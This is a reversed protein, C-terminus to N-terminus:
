AFSKCSSIYSCGIIARLANGLISNCVLVLLLHMSFFCNYIHSEEDAFKSIGSGSNHINLIGMFEYFRPVLLMECCVLWFKISVLVSLWHLLYITPLSIQLSFTKYLFHLNFLNGFIFAQFKFYKAKFQHQKKLSAQFHLWWCIASPSSCSAGLPSGSTMLIKWSLM